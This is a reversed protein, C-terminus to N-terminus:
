GGPSGHWPSDKWIADWLDKETFTEREAIKEQILILLKHHKVEDEHIAEFILKMRPDESERALKETLEVMEAETEIHKRIGEKIIALEEETLLPQTRSLLEYISRYFISHKDSDQAIGLILAQLVPHKFKTALERLEEAYKKELESMERAKERIEEIKM